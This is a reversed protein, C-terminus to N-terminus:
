AAGARRPSFRQPSAPSQVIVRCATTSPFALPRITRRNVCPIDMEDHAEAPLQSSEAHAEISVRGAGSVYEVHIGLAAVGNGLLSQVL